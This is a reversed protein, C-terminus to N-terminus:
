ISFFIKNKKKKYFIYNKKNNFKELLFLFMKELLFMMDKYNSYAQYIEIMSFEPNHYRSIGENRFCRNLEFIKTFGGIILKKLYLEPAIRLYMKMNLKNHKTSFPKAIAGGPIPHLMPTEVEMFNNKELFYRILKIIKIRKLFTKRTKKNIILDLYRKRYKINKNKIKNFKDPIFENTKVLIKIHKCKITLENTKTKYINGIIYIIDGINIKKILYKYKKILFINKNISIQINEEIDQINLFTINGMKRKSIIRGAINVKINKKELIFSSINSYKNKILYINKVYKKNKM